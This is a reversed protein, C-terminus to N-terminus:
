GTNCGERFLFIDYLAFKVMHGLIYLITQKEQTRGLAVSREASTLVRQGLSVLNWEQPPMTMLMSLKLWQQQRREV